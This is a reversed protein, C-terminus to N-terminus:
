GAHRKVEATDGSSDAGKKGTLGGPSVTWLDSGASRSQCAFRIAILEHSM